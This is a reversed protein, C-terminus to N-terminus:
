INGKVVFYFAILGLVLAAIVALATKTSVQKAM